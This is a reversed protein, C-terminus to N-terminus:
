FIEPTNGTVDNKYNIFLFKIGGPWKSVRSKTKNIKIPLAM